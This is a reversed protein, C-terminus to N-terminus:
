EILEGGLDRIAAAALSDPPVAAGASRLQAGSDGTQFAVQIPASLVESLASNLTATFEPRGKLRDMFARTTAVRLHTGDLAQVVCRELDTKTLARIKGRELLLEIARAWAQTLDQGAQPRPAMAAPASPAPAPMPREPARALPREVVVPPECAEVIALELPLQPQWGARSDNAATNFIRIARLLDAPSWAKAQRALVAHVDTTAEVQAANGLRVLLLARLHDVMQRALQRPEAGADLSTHILDLGQGTQRESLLDTLAQVTQNLATGLLAQTQALTARSSAAVVQDLLSEADRLAGTAQRAILELAPREFPIGEHGCLTELRSVIASVPIRRFEFRQCRSVVTAPVKYSETTALIFVAHPPPEELTKLLANFAGISLMHVEDIIYVKFRGQGPSFNIKDRLERVNEVSNNSAGDIEILDLFRGENVAVCHECTNCPRQAPDPNLCNVAKAVLRASTTKGCGRPGSFLYAHGVREHAIAQRLSTVVPDQGVVEDWLQPRWKRYLAPM